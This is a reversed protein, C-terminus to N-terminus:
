LTSCTGPMFLSQPLKCLYKITGTQPYVVEVGSFKRSLDESYPNALVIIGREYDMGTRPVDNLDMKLLVAMVILLFFDVAILM